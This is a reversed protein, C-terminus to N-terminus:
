FHRTGRYPLSNIPRYEPETNEKTPHNASEEWTQAAVSGAEQIRGQVMKKWKTNDGTYVCLGYLCTEKFTCKLQYKYPILTQDKMDLAKMEVASGLADAADDTQLTKNFADSHAQILKNDNSERQYTAVGEWTHRSFSSTPCRVFFRWKKLEEMFAKEDPWVDEKIFCRQKFNFFQLKQVDDYAATTFFAEEQTNSHVNTLAIPMIDAPVTEGKGIKVIMGPALNCMNCAREEWVMQGGKYKLFLATARENSKTDKGDKATTKKLNPDKLEKDADRELSEGTTNLCAQQVWSKDNSVFTQAEDPSTWMGDEDFAHDKWIEELDDMDQDAM